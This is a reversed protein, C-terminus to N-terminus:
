APRSLRRHALLIVPLAAAQLVMSFAVLGTLSHDYLWGMAASGVFWLTGYGAYFIGFATGRRERPSLDAVAAKMMSEVAGLGIGWVAVGVVILAPAGWFVLPAFVCSVAGAAVLTKLGSRDYLRGFGLASLGHTGMAMAYLLAIGSPAFKSGRELHFAMLSFDAYGAAVLGAGALLTWYAPGLGKAEGEFRRM